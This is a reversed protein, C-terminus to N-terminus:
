TSTDFSQYSFEYFVAFDVTQKFNDHPHPLELVIELDGVAAAFGSVVQRAGVLGSRAAEM